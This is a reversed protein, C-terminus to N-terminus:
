VLFLYLLLICVGFVFMLLYLGISGSQMKKGKKSIAYVLSGFGCIEGGGGEMRCFFVVIGAFKRCFVRVNVAFRGLATCWICSCGDLDRGWLWIGQIRCGFRM